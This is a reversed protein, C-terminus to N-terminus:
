RHSALNALNAAIAGFSVLLGLVVSIILWTKAQKAAERAMALDGLNKATNAKNSYIIAAIGGPMCCLLTAAIAWPLYNPIAEGVGGYAPQPTYLTGPPPQYQPPSYPSVDAAPAAPPPPPPQYSPVSPFALGAVEGAPQWAAMGERWVLDERRLNGEQIMRQLQEDSVPGQQQGGSAFYWM